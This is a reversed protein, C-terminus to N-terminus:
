GNTKWNTRIKEERKLELLGFSMEQEIDIMANHNCSLSNPRNQVIKSSKVGKREGNKNQSRSMM